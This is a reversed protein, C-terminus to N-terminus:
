ITVGNYTPAKNAEAEEREAKLRKYEPHLFIIQVVGAICSIGAFVLMTVTNDQPIIDGNTGCNAYPADAASLPQALAQALFVLIIGQIQGSVVLLGASTAEAVPYSVEVALELSIPYLAFGFFGFIGAAVVMVADLNRYRTLVALVVFGIGAMAYSVKVVEQFMKTKDVFVGAVGAGVVGCIIMLAACLGSISDDYGRPCLVQELITTLTSFLGLGSGFVVCLVWYQGNRALLVIFDTATHKDTTILAPSLVNALLLGLPNSMSGIMNATARENQAFWVAAVKAPSEIIFPQAVAAITQGILVLPFRVSDSMDMPIASVVRLVPGILNLSSALIIGARLGLTDLLWTALLGLPISAIMYVLSLWNVTTLSVNYFEATQDAIPAFSLWILAKQLSQLRWNIKRRQRQEEAAVGPRERHRGGYRNNSMYWRRRYVRYDGTSREVNVSNKLLSERDNGTVVEM